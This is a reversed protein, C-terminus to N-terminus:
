AQKNGTVIDGNSALQEWEQKLKYYEAEKEKLFHQTVSIKYELGKKTLHYQIKSLKGPNDTFNKVEVLGKKILEKLLYNVKGLSITLKMSLERQTVAPQSEIEKIIILNEEKLVPQESM